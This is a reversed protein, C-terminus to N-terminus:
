DLRRGLHEAVTRVGDLDLESCFLFPVTVPPLRHRRLRAIQAQQVASQRALSRAARAATQAVGGGREGAAGAAQETEALESADFRRPLVGNVVVTELRRGLGRRLKAELEITESVAMEGAQTVALYSSYGPDDLLERIHAAQNAVPGVRAIAAFTAPSRLLALAHGTAPADLVVTDFRNRRKGWRETQALDWVKAMTAVERAGPAAAVFYQFTASSGLVRAPVRGGVQTEIWELLARYPDITISWLGDDLPTEEGRTPTVGFLAPVRHQEGVEVVITRRGRGAALMGLATAVTTKGVGGKGTVVILHRHLPSPVSSRDPLIVTMAM